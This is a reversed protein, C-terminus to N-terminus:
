SRGFAILSARRHAARSERAAWLLPEASAAVIDRTRHTNTCRGAHIRGCEAPPCEVLYPAATAPASDAPRRVHVFVPNSYFWLDGWPSELGDALPEVEDTSTGRVRAYLDGEVDHLTHRIVYEKGQKRWDSPGVRAVVKTTPNTDSDLASPGTIQGM